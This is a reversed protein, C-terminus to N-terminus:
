PRRTFVALKVRPSGQGQPIIKTMRLPEELLPEEATFLYYLRGRERLIRGCVRNLTALPSFSRALVADFQGIDEQLPDCALIEIGDLDLVEVIHRLFTCKKVSREILYVSSGPHLIKYPIAPLGSGSGLDAMAPEEIGTLLPLLADLEDEIGSLMAPGMLHLRENFRRLERIWAKLKDDTM